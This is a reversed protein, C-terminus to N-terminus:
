SVFYKYYKLDYGFWLLLIALEACVLTNALAEKVTLKQWKGTSASTVVDGFRKALDPIELPTPPKFEVKAYRWFTQLRPTSFAVVGLNVIQKLFFNIM